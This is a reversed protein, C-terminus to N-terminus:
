SQKEKPVERAYVRGSVTTGEEVDTVVISGIAITSDNRVHLSDSIVARPGIRVNNGVHVSGCIMAEGLILCSHGIVVNHGIHVQMGVKTGCGIVTDDDSALSRGVFTMSQIEVDNEIVVGGYHKVMLIAGTNYRKAETAEGGIVSGARIICNDGIRVNEKISVFEEIIVNNGIIVNNDPIYALPHIKCNEGIQTKFKPRPQNWENFRRWYSIYPQDSVIIGKIHSPLMPVLERRCILCSVNENQAQTLFIDSDLFSLIKFGNNNNLLGLKDFEGDTLLEEEDYLVTESLKM